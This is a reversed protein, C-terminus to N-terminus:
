LRHNLLIVTQRGFRRLPARRHDSNASCGRKLRKIGASTIAPRAPCCHPRTTQFQASEQDHDHSQRQTQQAHRTETRQVVAAQEREEGVGDGDGVVVFHVFQLPFEEPVRGRECIGGSSEAQQLDATPAPRVEAEVGVPARHGASVGVRAELAVQAPVHVGVLVHGELAEQHQGPLLQPADPVLGHIHDDARQNQAGDPVRPFDQPLGPAHESLHPETRTDFRNVASRGRLLVYIFCLDM